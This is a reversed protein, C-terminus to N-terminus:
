KPNGDFVPQLGAKINAVGGDNLWQELDAGNVVGDGTLDFQFVADVGAAKDADFIEEMKEFVEQASGVNAM